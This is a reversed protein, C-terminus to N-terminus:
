ERGKKRKEQAMYFYTVSMFGYWMNLEENYTEQFLPMRWLVDM